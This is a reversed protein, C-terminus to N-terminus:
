KKPEDPSGGQLKINASEGHNASGLARQLEEGGGHHLECGGERLPPPRLAAVLCLQGYRTIVVKRLARKRELLFEKGVRRLVNVGRRWM